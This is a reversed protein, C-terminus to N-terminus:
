IAFDAREEDRKGIRRATARDCLDAITAQRLHAMVEGRAQQMVPWVVALGLPTSHPPTAEEEEDRLVECIEAMSIRRRERALRYGGRPGRVGRLIGARVLKQMLQELYRPPLNQQDAIEKSSVPANGGNYAIYVVAEIAYFLKRPLAIM